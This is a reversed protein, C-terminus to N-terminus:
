IGLGPQTSSCAAERSKELKKRVKVKKVISQYRTTFAKMLGYDSVLGMISHSNKCHLGVNFMTKKQELPLTENSQATGALLVVSIFDSEPINIERLLKDLEPKVNEEYNKCIAYLERLGVKNALKDYALTKNTKLENYENALKSANRKVFSTAETSNDKSLLCDYASLQIYHDAITFDTVGSLPVECTKILDDLLNLNDHEFEEFLADLPSLKMKSWTVAMGYCSKLDDFLPGLVLKNMSDLFRSKGLQFDNDELYTLIRDLFMKIAVNNAYRVELIQRAEEIVKRDIEKKKKRNRKVSRDEHLSYIVSQLLPAASMLLFIHNSYCELVNASVKKLARYRYILCQKFYNERSDDSLAIKTDTGCAFITNYDDTLKKIHNDFDAYIIKLFSLEFSKTADPQWRQVTADFTPELIKDPNAEALQQQITATSSSTSTIADSNKNPFQQM